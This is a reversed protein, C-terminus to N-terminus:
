KEDMDPYVESQWGGDYKIPIAPELSFKPCRKPFSHIGLQLVGNDEMRLNIPFILFYISCQYLQQHTVVVFMWLSPILLYDVNLVRVISCKM